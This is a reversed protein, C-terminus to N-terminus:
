YDWQFRIGSKNAGKGTIESEVTVNPTLEVEVGAATSQSDAGQKIGVYVQDTLYKGAELAPADGEATEIRLVDVGLTRRAFGLIDAGGGKGTLDRLAIALQAAEAATLAAASKDFLVRSVIEDRPVPPVSTLGLEPRSLPGSLRATVTLGGGEHVATVDLAPESDAGEPLTVKGSKLSFNKGVVSLQGRVLELTGTVAPSAAPGQVSIRGRWESDLGRGRVFVRRPMEVVIDLLADIPPPEEAAPPQAQVVGNKVEVVDLSVVTPPLDTLLSVEVTETTFHGEVRPAGIDGDLVLKGSTVATVDDRRVVHFKDLMVTLDFPFDRGPEIALGGSGSVRGGAGDNASLSALAVREETVEATLGLDALITGTQLNEYRGRTLAIHGEARPVAATGGIELAVEAEGELRHQPLP